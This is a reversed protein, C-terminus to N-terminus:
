KGLLVEFRGTSDAAGRAMGPTNMHMSIRGDRGVAILGGIDPELTKFIVQRVAEDLSLGRYEMLAAVRYAVVNRIFHEGTGTCSVACAANDAYTGAGIIPSDGIRGFRKNTLGGTSTGAALNGHRDLAVCGVTGKGDGPPSAQKGRVPSTAERTAEDVAQRWQDRREDTSFYENEVLEIGARTHMSRAFEDAGAGALLVHRTDTMVLRALTIPNKVRTVGAVAGCRKTRGDMISADLEHGGASNFVAGRGANFLPDDELRRIVQEVADLATGGKALFEQGARLAAALSREYAARREPDLTAPEVGAGGHIAIAYEINGPVAAEQGQGATATAALLTVIWLGAITRSVVASM